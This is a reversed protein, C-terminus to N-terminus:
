GTPSRFRSAVVKPATPSPSAACRSRASRWPWRLCPWPSRPPSGAAPRARRRRVRALRRASRARQEERLAAERLQLRLETVFDQSMAASGMRRRMSALGRSVRKRVVAESTHLEGAIEGYPREDVVHAAIAARQEPPLREM